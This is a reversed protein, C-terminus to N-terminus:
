QKASSQQWFGDSSVQDAAIFRGSPPLPVPGTALPDGTQDMWDVLRRQLSDAVEAVEGDDILNRQECPDLILDYLAEAPREEGQGWGADVWLSKSPGDDTNPLVASSRQDFRRIYKWRETRVCREPQYSVHWTIEGFLDDRIRDTQGRVLPVLSQGELWGPRDVGVVDCLTPYVDLHSVLADCVAGGSFGGPGRMLLMVELGGDHLTCKMRPFGIGHDTTCIVLTSDALGADDLAGLVRGFDADMKRASALYRAMDSRVDPHDPMPTPPSLYRADDRPDAELYCHRHTLYHGVSLFFPEAPPSALFEEAASIRRDLDGDADADLIRDYGIDESHAAIHQTGSLATLYGHGKLVHVVHRSMDRISFGLNSLGLMGCVHPSTGTLMAARSPSCTPGCCFAKRFLVGQEALRQLNPTSVARGYPQLYRGTDHTHLYLINPRKV